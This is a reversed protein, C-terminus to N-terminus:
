AIREGRSNMFKIVHDAIMQRIVPIDDDQFMMYQRQPMYGGRIAGGYQHIFAYRLGRGAEVVAERDNWQHRISNYLAGTKYLFSPGGRKLPPWKVPRGGMRFNLEVSERMYEAIKQMPPTFDEPPTPLTGDVELKIM